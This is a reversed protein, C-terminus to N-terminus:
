SYLSENHKKFWSLSKEIAKSRYEDIEFFLEHYAGEIIVPVDSPCSKPQLAHLKRCFDTQARLSVVSDEGAQLLLIPTTLQPLKAFIEDQAKVCEKLWHATVGGLQINKNEALWNESIAYRSQCHTLNNKSFSLPAYDKQGLFYWPEQTIFHNLTLQTTVISKAFSIPLFGAHFGLMPSSIVAAKIVNPWDQMFRVAIAGGMSHALLYPKDVCDDSIIEEIFYRLDDIYDQFKKVYGKDPNSLLRGSLGQGRHDIIFINYGQHYLDFALERYKVYSEGRGPLLIISQKKQSPADHEPYTKQQIFKAYHININDAGNFSGFYGQQWFNSFKAQSQSKFRNQQIEIDISM